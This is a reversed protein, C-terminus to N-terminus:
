RRNMFQHEVDGSSISPILEGEEEELGRRDQGGAPEFAQRSPAPDGALDDGVAGRDSKREAVETRKKWPTRRM